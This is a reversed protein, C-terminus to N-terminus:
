MALESDEAYRQIGVPRMASLSNSEIAFHRFLVTLTLIIKKYLLKLKM